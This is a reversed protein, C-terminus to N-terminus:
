RLWKEGEVAAYVTSAVAVCLFIEEPSIDDKQYDVRLTGFFGLGGSCSPDDEGSRKMGRKM